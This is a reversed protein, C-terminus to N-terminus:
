HNFFLVSMVTITLAATTAITSALSLQNGCAFDTFNTGNYIDALWTSQGPGVGTCTVVFNSQDLCGINVVDGLNGSVNVFNSNLVTTNACGVQESCGTSISWESLGPAVGICTSSYTAGSSSIYGDHCSVTQTEGLAGSLILIDSNAVDLSGCDVPSCSSVPTVWASEGPASGECSATFATGASSSYGDNSVVGLSAGTTAGSFSTVNSNFIILHPCTTPECSLADWRSEGIGVGVCTSTFNNGTNSTYGHNCTVVVTDTTYGVFSSIDSNEVSLTQCAVASCVPVTFLGDTECTAAGGGSYGVACYVTVSEGTTGTISGVAAANSNIVETPECHNASCVPVTFLGNTGCVAAGSGSYGAACIVYVSQGTTGTISGVAAANSNNVETPSCYNGQCSGTYWPYSSNSASISGTYGPSCACGAEVYDMNPNVPLSNMPCRTQADSNYCVGRKNCGRLCADPLGDIRMISSFYNFFYPIMETGFLPYTNRGYYGNDTASAMIFARYGSVTATIFWPSVSSFDPFSSPPLRAADVATDTQIQVCLDECFDNGDDCSCGFKCSAYDAYNGLFYNSSDFDLGDCWVDCEKMTMYGRLTLEDGIAGLPAGHRAAVSVAILSLSLRL